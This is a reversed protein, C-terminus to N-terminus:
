FSSSRPLILTLIRYEEFVELFLCFASRRFSVRGAWSLGTVADEQPAYDCMKTVVATKASWLYVCRGLGVSLNNNYGWDVLNLYFDDQLEPADLVKYPVKNLVRAPKRPIQLFERSELKIPSTSYAQHNPSDMGDLGSGGTIGSFIGIGSGGGRGTGSSTVSSPDFEGFIGIREAGGGSRSHSPSKNYQLLNRKSPTTPASM